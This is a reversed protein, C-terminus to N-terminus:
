TYISDDDLPAGKRILMYNKRGQVILKKEELSALATSAIYRRDPIGNKEMKRIVAEFLMNKELGNSYPQLMSAIYREVIGVRRIWTSANDDNKRYKGEVYVYEHPDHKLTM